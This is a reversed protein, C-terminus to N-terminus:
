LKNLSFCFSSRSVFPSLRAQLIVAVNLERYLLMLRVLRADGGCRLSWDFRASVLIAHGSRLGIRTTNTVSIATAARAGITADM